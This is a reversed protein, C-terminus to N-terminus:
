KSSELEPLRFSLLLFVVGFGLLVIYDVVTPFVRVTSPILLQRIGWMAALLGLSGPLLERATHLKMLQTLFVIVIAFVYVTMTRLFLHRRVHLNIGRTGLTNSIDFNEDKSLADSLSVDLKTFYLGGGKFCDELNACGDPSIPITATDFPYILAPTAQIDIIVDCFTHSVHAHPVPGSIDRSENRFIPTDPAETIVGCLSSKVWEQEIFKTQARFVLQEEGSKLLLLILSRIRDKDTVYPARNWVDVRVDVTAKKHRRDIQKVTVDITATFRAKPNGYPKPSTVGPLATAQRYIDLVLAVVLLFLALSLLVPRWLRGVM